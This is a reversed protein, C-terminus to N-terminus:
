AHAHMGIRPTYSSAETDSRKVGLRQGSKHPATKRSANQRIYRGGGAEQGLSGLTASGTPVESGLTGKTRRESANQTDADTYLSHMHSHMGDGTAHDSRSDGEGTAGHVWVTAGSALDRLLASPECWCLSSAQHDRGGIPLGVRVAHIIDGRNATM